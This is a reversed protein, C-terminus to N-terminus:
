RFIVFGGSGDSLTFSMTHGGGRRNKSIVATGSARNTCHLQASESRVREPPHRFLGTCTLGDQTSSVTVAYAGEKHGFIRGNAVGGGYISGSGAMNIDAQSTGVSDAFSHHTSSSGSEAFFSEVADHARGLQGASCSSGAAIRRGSPNYLITCGSDYRVEIEGTSRVHLEPPASANASGPAGSEQLFRGSVWGSVDGRPTEVHCWRSNGTGRCGLNRFVFGNPAMSTVRYKTGPGSRINLNDDSAVGTIQWYDPGSQAQAESTTGFSFAAALVPVAFASVCLLRIASSVRNFATTNVIRM